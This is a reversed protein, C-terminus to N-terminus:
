AEVGPEHCEDPVLDPENRRPIAQCGPHTEPSAVEFSSTRRKSGKLPLDAAPGIRIGSSGRTTIRQSVPPLIGPVPM